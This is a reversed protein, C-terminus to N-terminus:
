HYVFFSDSFSEESYILFKGLLLLTGHTCPSIARAMEGGLGAALDALM